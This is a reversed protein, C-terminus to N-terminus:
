LAVVVAGDKMPGDLVKHDLYQGSTQRRKRGRSVDRKGEELAAVGCSCASAAFRRELAALRELVLELLLERVFTLRKSPPHCLHAVFVALRVYKKAASRPM